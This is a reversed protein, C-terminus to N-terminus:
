LNTLVIEKILQRWICVCTHPSQRSISILV